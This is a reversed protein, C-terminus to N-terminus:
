PLFSANSNAQNAKNGSPMTHLSGPFSLADAKEQRGGCLPFNLYFRCQRSAPGALILLIEIVISLKCMLYIIITRCHAHDKVFPHINDAVRRFKRRRLNRLLAPLIEVLPRPTTHRLQQRSKLKM